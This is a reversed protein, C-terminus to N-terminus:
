NSRYPEPRATHIAFFIAQKYGSRANGLGDCGSYRSFCSCGASQARACYAPVPLTQPQSAMACTSHARSGVHSLGDWQTSYQLHLVVLDDSLVDTRGPDFEDLVYNFNVHGKRLTPRLVPPYRNAHLANGGPYDLPLSLCFTEGARDEALGKLVQEANPLNLRGLQDDPGFDGWNSGEPRRKWRQEAM